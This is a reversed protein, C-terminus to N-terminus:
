DNSKSRSPFAFHFATFFVVILTLVMIVSIVAARPFDSQGQITNLILISLTPRAGSGLYSPAIYDGMALMFGFAFGLVLGGRAMPIVVTIVSTIRGAGLNNAAELYERNIYMLSLLQILIVLPFFYAMYGLVTPAFSGQFGVISLGIQALVVNVIGDDELMFRWSYIRVFYNTFFPLILLMFAIRQIREGVRFALTYAVPFALISSLGAAFASYAITRFYITYFLDSSLVRVWNQVNYDAVIRYSKVAWFTMLVLIIAAGLYFLVQWAFM